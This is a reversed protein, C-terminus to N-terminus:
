KKFKKIIDVYKSSPIFISYINNKARKGKFIKKQKTTKIEELIMKVQHDIYKEADYVNEQLKNKLINFSKNNSSILLATNKSLPIVISQKDDNDKCGFKWIESISFGIKNNLAYGTMYNDKFFDKLKIETQQIVQTFYNTLINEISQNKKMAEFHQFINNFFAKYDDICSYLYLVKMYQEVLLRNYISTELTDLDNIIMGNYKFVLIKSLINKTLNIEDGNLYIKVDKIKKDRNNEIIDVYDLVGKIFEEISNVLYGEFIVISNDLFFTHKHLSSFKGHIYDNIEDKNSLTNSVLNVSNNKKNITLEHLVGDEGVWNKLLFKPITHHIKHIKLNGLIKDFIEPSNMIQQSVDIKNKFIKIKKYLNEIEEIEVKYIIDKVETNSTYKKM